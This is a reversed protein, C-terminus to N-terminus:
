KFFFETLSSFASARRATKHLSIKLSVQFSMKLFLSKLVTFSSDAKDDARTKLYCVIKVSPLPTTLSYCCETEPRGEVDVVSAFFTAMIQARRNRFLLKYTLNFMPATPIGFDTIRYNNRLCSLTSLTGHCQSYASEEGYFHGCTVPKSHTKPVSYFM